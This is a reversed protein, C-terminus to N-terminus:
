LPPTLWEIEDNLRIGLRVPVISSVDRMAFYVSPATFTTPASYHHQEPLAVFPAPDSYGVVAM